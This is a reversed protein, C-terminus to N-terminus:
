STDGILDSKLLIILAEASGSTGLYLIEPKWASRRALLHQDFCISAVAHCRELWGSIGVKQECVKGLDESAQGLFLM